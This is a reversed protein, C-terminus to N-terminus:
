KMKNFISNAWEVAAAVQSSHKDITTYVQDPKTQSVQLYMVRYIDGTASTIVTDEDMTYIKDQKRCWEYVDLITKDNFFTDKDYNDGDLYYRLFYYVAKPNKAGKALGYAELEGYHQYYVSGKQPIPVVGLKNQKKFNEFQFSVRRADIMSRSLFLNDGIVIGGYNIPVLDVLGDQIMNTMEVLGNYLVKSNMNSKYRDGVKKTYGENQANAIDMYTVPSWSPKGTENYFDKLMEIFKDWNWKGKKWLQYPDEFGYKAITDRNYFLVTPQQILTNKLNAAYIEGNVTYYDTVTKDWESSKFDFGTKSLPDSNKLIAPDFLKHRIIDPSKGAAVLASIETAYTEYNGVNWKVKIGTKKTFDEIVKVAGTCDNAPNWSYVTVTTGNLESPVGNISESLSGGSKNTTKNTTKKNGSQSTNKDEGSSTNSQNDATDVTSEDDEYVSYYTEKTTKCASFTVSIMVLTLLLVFVRKITKETSKQQSLM